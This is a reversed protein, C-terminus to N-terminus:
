ARTQVAETHSRGIRLTRVIFFLDIIDDCPSRPESTAPVINGHTRSIDQKDGREFGMM